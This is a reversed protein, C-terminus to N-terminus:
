PCIGICQNKSRCVKVRKAVLDKFASKKAGRERV